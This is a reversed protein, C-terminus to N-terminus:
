TPQLVDVDESETSEDSPAQRELIELIRDTNARTAEVNDFMVRPPFDEPMHEMHSQMREFFTPRPGTSRSKAAAVAGALAVGGAVGILLKKNM